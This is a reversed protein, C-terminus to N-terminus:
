KRSRIYRIAIGVLPGISFLLTLGAFTPKDSVLLFGLFAFVLIGVLSEVLLLQKEEHKYARGEWPQWGDQYDKKRWFRQKKEQLILAILWWLALILCSAGTLHLLLPHKM